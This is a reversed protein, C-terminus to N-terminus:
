RMEATNVQCFGRDGAGSQALECDQRFEDAQPEVVGGNTVSRNCLKDHESVNPRQVGIAGAEAVLAYGPQPLRHWVAADSEPPLRLPRRGSTGTGWRQGWVCSGIRVRPRSDM